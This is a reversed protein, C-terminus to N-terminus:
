PRSLTVGSWFVADGRADGAAGPDFELALEGADAADFAVDLELLMRDAMSAMPDLVREFLTRPEAGPVRLVVRCTAGDTSNPFLAERLYGYRASLRTHGAAVDYVLRSPAGVALVEERWMFFDRRPPLASEIARPPTGFMSWEFTRALEPPTVPALADENTVRVDFEEHWLGEPVPALVQFAIVRAVDRGEFWRMWADHDELLPAVIAGARLLEPVIRYDLTRGDSTEVRIMVPAAQYLLTRASGLATPRVDLHLVLCRADAAGLEVREGCRARQHLVEREATARPADARRELVVFGRETAVPVYDRLVTRLALVDESAPLRGDAVSGRFLVFRAADPAALDRANREALRETLVSFAFSGLRPKWHLGNLQLLAHEGGFMEVPSDGVLARTRPLGFLQERERTQALVRRELAAPAVMDPVHEAIRQALSHWVERPNALGFGTGMNGGVAVVLAVTRTWALARVARVPPPCACALVYPAAGVYGFFLIAGFNRVYGAKFALFAGLAFLVLPALTRASPVHARAHLVLVALCAAGGAAAWALALDGIPISMGESYGRTLDVSWSVYAPLDLPSQGLACWVALFVLANVLAFRLAARAGRTRWASVLAAGACLVAFLLFTFKVLGILTWGLAICVERARNQRESGTDWACLGFAAVFWWSDSRMAPAILAVVFLVREWRRELRTAVLVLALVLAGRVALEWVFKTWFLGEVHPSTNFWGLPGFTFLVDVGFRLRQALAMGTAQMYSPDLRANATALSSEWHTALVLFVASAVLAAATLRRATTDRAPPREDHPVPGKERPVVCAGRLARSMRRKM